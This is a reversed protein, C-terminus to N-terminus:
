MSCLILHHSLGIFLLLFNFYKNALCDIQVIDDLDIGTCFMVRHLSLM